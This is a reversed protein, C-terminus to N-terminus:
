VSENHQMFFPVGCQSAGKSTDLAGVSRPFRQRQKMFFPVGYQSTGKSTDIAGVSRPFWQIQQMFFPVGYQLEKQPISRGSAEPSGSDKNCLFLFEMNFSRKLYRDGRRKPPVVTNTTYFFPVGYQLEKQPISRIRVATSPTASWQRAVRGRYWNHTCIYDSKLIIFM